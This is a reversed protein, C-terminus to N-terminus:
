LVFALLLLVKLLEDRGFNFEGSGFFLSKRKMPARFARSFGASRIFRLLVGSNLESRFFLLM